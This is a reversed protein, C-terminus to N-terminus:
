RPTAGDLFLAACRALSNGLSINELDDLWSLVTIFYSMELHQALEKAPMDQRIHGKGQAHEIVKTLIGEFGSRLKEDKSINSKNRLRYFIYVQWMEPDAEYIKDGKKFIALLCSRVDPYSQIFEDLHFTEERSFAQVYAGIIGEKEPFYNYLTKKAIDVEQAIQELTTAYFGQKRFLEMAVTTINQRMKDKKREIRSLRIEEEPM